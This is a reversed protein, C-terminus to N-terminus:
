WIDMNKLLVKQKISKDVQLLLSDSLLCFKKERWKILKKEEQWNVSCSPRGTERSVAVLQLNFDIERSKMLRGAKVFFIKILRM